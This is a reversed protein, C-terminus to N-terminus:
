MYLYCLSFLTGICGGALVEALTHRGIVIRTYGVLLAVALWAWGLFHLEQYFLAAVFINLATHMSSKIWFNSLQMTIVLLTLIVFRNDALGTALYVYLNYLILLGTIVLYLSNRQKRNSVDMNSYRGRRVNWIIWFSIPVILILIIPLLHRVLGEPPHHLSLDFVAYLFFSTLPNFFNSVAKAAKYFFSQQQATTAPKKTM